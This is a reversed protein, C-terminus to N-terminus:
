CARFVVYLARLVYGGGRDREDAAWLAGLRSGASLLQEALTRWREADLQKRWAPVAGPVPQASIEM